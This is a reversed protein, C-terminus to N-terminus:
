QPSGTNATGDRTSRLMSTYQSGSHQLRACSFAFHGSRFVNFNNTHAAGTVLNAQCSPTDDTATL